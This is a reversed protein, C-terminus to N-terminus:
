SSISSSHAPPRAVREHRSINIKGSTSNQADGGRNSTLPSVFLKLSGPRPPLTWSKNKETAKAKRLKQHQKWNQITTAKKLASITTMAMADEDTSLKLIIKM